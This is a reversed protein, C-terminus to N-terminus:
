AAWGAATTRMALGAAVEDDGPMDRGALDALTWAVRLIRDAGRQSVRHEAVSQRLMRWASETPPYTRRLTSAPVHANLSWPFQGWRRAARDRAEIVRAAVVATSEAPEGVLERPQELEVRLDIRDMLPGSLRQAYRRRALSTCTCREARGLGYGCPCPNAAVVLQFRAPLRVSLGARAVVAIGSELPQRLAELASRDFEPAEDLFLVGRHALTALGARVRGGSGGGVLAVETASHHPAEFPARDILGAGEPLLGFASRISTVELAADADLPPLLGPLREALLTKGVGPSGIMALHHGGAAAVELAWRAEHQGRVDVLDPASVSSIPPAPPPAADPQAEGRLVHVLHILSDVPVVELGQVLAAEAANGRPVVLRKMGARYASVAASIVGRVPRVRGDLGLEGMVVCAEASAFPVQETAALVAVAVALDLGSGRKHVDTPLLAITIKRQPWELGSNAVATRARDRSEGVAKDPLGVITMGVLGAAVDAEVEVLVGEVGMVVAAHTRAVSM